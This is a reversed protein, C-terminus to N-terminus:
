SFVRYPPQMAAVETGSASLKGTPHLIVTRDKRKQKKGHLTDSRHWLIDREKKRAGMIKRCKQATTIPQKEFILEMRSKKKKKQHPQYTVDAVWYILVLQGRETM